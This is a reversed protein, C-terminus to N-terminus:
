LRKLPVSRIMKVSKHVSDSTQWSSQDLRQVSNVWFLSDNTFPCRENSLSFYVPRKSYIYANKKVQITNLYLLSLLTAWLLSTFTCIKELFNVSTLTFTGLTSLTNTVWFLLHLENSGVQRCMASITNGGPCPALCGPDHESADVEVQFCGWPLVPAYKWLTKSSPSSKQNAPSAPTGPSHQIHHYTGCLAMEPQKRTVKLM